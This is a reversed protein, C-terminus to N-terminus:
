FDRKQFNHRLKDAFYRWNAPRRGYVMYFIVCVACGVVGSGHGVKRGAVAGRGSASQPAAAAHTFPLHAAYKEKRNREM